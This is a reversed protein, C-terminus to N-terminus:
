NVHLRDNIRNAQALAARPGILTQDADTNQRWYDLAKSLSLLREAAPGQLGTPLRTNAELLSSYQIQLNRVREADKIAKRLVREELATKHISLTNERRIRMAKLEADPDFRPIKRKIM